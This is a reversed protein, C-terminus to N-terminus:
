DLIIAELQRRFYNEIKDTLAKSNALRTTKSDIYLVAKAVGDGGIPYAYFSKSEHNLRALEEESFGWDTQMAEELTVGDQIVYSRPKRTKLVSGVIGHSFSFPRGKGTNTPYYNTLQEYRERRKNKLHHVTLRDTTPDLELVASITPLMAELLEIKAYQSPSTSAVVVVVYSLVFGVLWLWPPISPASQSDLARFFQALFPSAFVGFMAAIATRHDALFARIRFLM